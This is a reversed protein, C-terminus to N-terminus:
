FQLQRGGDAVTRSQSRFTGARDFVLKTAILYLGSSASIAAGAGIAWAAGYQNGIVSGITGGVVLGLLSSARVIGSGCGAIQKPILMQRLSEYNVSFVRNMFGAAALSAFIWLVPTGRLGVIPLVRAIGFIVASFAMTNWLGLRRSLKGAAMAGFMYFNACALVIGVTIPRMGLAHYAFYLLMSEGVAFGATFLFGAPLLHVLTHHSFLARAADRVRGKASQQIPNPVVNPAFGLLIFSGAYTLGDALFGAPGGLSQLLLSGAARGLGTGASKTAALTGTADLIADHAVLELVYIACASEFFAMLAGMVFVASALIGFNLLHIALVCAICISITMRLVDCIIMANRRPLRDALAGAKPAILAQPLFQLMFLMGVHFADAHLTFVAVTPVVFTSVNTGFM